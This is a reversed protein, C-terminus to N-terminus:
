IRLPLSPALPPPPREHRRVTLVRVAPEPVVHSALVLVPALSPTPSKQSSADLKRMSVPVTLCCRECSSAATLSPRTNSSARGSCCSAHCGQQVPENGLRRLCVTFGDPLAVVALLLALLLSRLQLLM